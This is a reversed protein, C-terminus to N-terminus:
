SDAANGPSDAKTGGARALTLLDARAALGHDLLLRSCENATSGTTVVDDVLLIRKGRIKEPKKIQFADRINEQRAARDLGVQPKTPRIRVLARTETRLHTCDTQFRKAIRPWDRLLLYAQNFGRERFRRIHLPIPLIVDIEKPDWHRVFASFLLMGFPRALGIKGQYKFHQILPKLIQDYAGYARAMRFRPPSELCHGCIMPRPSNKGLMSGCRKCIPPVLPSFSAACDPCVHSAMAQHFDSGGLEKEFSSGCPTPSLFVGCNLCRSPFLTNTLGGLVRLILQRFDSPTEGQMKKLDM